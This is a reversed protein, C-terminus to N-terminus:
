RQERQRAMWQYLTNYGTKSGATDRAVLAGSEDYLFVFPVHEINYMHRWHESYRVQYIAVDPRRKTFRRLDSDLRECTADDEKYFYLITTRGYAPGAQTIQESVDLIGPGSAQERALSANMLRDVVDVGGHNYEQWGAWVCIALIGLLIIKKM